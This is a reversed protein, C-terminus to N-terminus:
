QQENQKVEPYIPNSREILFMEDAGAKVCDRYM